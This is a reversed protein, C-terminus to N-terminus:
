KNIKKRPAPIGMTNNKEAAITPGELVNGLEGPSTPRDVIAIFFDAGSGPIDHAADKWVLKTEMGSSLSNVSPGALHSGSAPDVFINDFYTAKEDNIVEVTFNKATVAGVNKVFVHLDYKKAFVETSNDQEVPVFYMDKVILDPATKPLVIPKGKLVLTSSPGTTALDETTCAALSSALLIIMVIRSYISM